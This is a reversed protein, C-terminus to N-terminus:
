VDLVVSGEEEGEGIIKFELPRNDLSATPVKFLLLQGQTPSEATISNPDPLLGKPQLIAPRYALVNDVPVPTYTNNQTDIIRFEEATPKAEGEDEENKVRLFVGFWDTDRPLTEDEPDLGTLYSRDGPDAPNLIRSIQVQYQLGDLEVYQGESEAILESSKEGCATAFGLSGVLVVALFLRSLLKMAAPLNGM